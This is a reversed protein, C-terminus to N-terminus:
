TVKNNNINIYKHLIKLIINVIFIKKYYLKLSIYKSYFVTFFYIMQNLKQYKLLIKM